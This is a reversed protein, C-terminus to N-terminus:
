CIINFNTNIQMKIIVKPSIRKEMKSILLGSLENGILKEVLKLQRDNLEGDKITGIEIIDSVSVTPWKYEVKIKM